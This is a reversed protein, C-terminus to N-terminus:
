VSSLPPPTVLGDGSFRDESDDSGFLDESTIKDVAERLTTSYREEDTDPSFAPRPPPPPPQESAVNPSLAVSVLNELNITPHTPAEDPMPLVTITPPQTPRQKQQDGAPLRICRLSVNQEIFRYLREFNTKGLAVTQVYSPRMNNMLSLQAAALRDIFAHYFVVQQSPDVTVLVYSLQQEELDAHQEICRVYHQNYSLAMHIESWHDVLNQLGDRFLQVNQNSYQYAPQYINTLTLKVGNEMQLSVNGDLKHRRVQYQEEACKAPRKKRGGGGSNIEMDGRHKSKSDRPMTAATRVTSCVKVFQFGLRAACGSKYTEIIDNNLLPAM